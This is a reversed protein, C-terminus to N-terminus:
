LCLSKGMIIHGIQGNDFEAVGPFLGWQGFGYKNILKISSINNEFIIAILKKKLEKVTMYHLHSFNLGTDGLITNIILVIVLKPLKTLVLRGKHYQSISCWGRVKRFEEIVYISHKDFSYENFWDLKESTKYPMTDATTGKSIAQNYIEVIQELDNKRAFRIM